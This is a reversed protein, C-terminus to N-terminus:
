SGIVRRSLNWVEQVRKYHIDVHGDKTDVGIQDDRTGPSLTGFVLAIRTRRTAHGREGTIHRLCVRDGMWERRMRPLQRRDDVLPNTAFKTWPDFHAAPTGQSNTM